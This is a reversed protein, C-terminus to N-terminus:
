PADPEFWFRPTTDAGAVKLRVPDGIRWGEVARGALRAAVKLPGLDVYAVVFPEFEGDAVYPPKPALRQVTWSWVTGVSPLAAPATADGCRACAAQAPFVHTGCASCRAGALHAVGDFSTVPDGDITATV